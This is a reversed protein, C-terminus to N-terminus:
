PIKALGDVLLRRDEPLRIPFVETFWKRIDADSPATPGAWHIRIDAFFRRLAERAQDLHGLHVHAVAAWGQIDPFVDPANAVSEVCRKFDRGLLSVTSRYGWYLAPRFPNLAFARECLEAARAHRGCFANALGCVLLNDPNSPNLDHALQFHLEGPEFRRALLHSWGLHNHNRCDLPDLAVARRALDYAARRGAADEPSGPFMFWRSNLVSAWSGYACALQDDLSLAKQFLDIAEIETPQTWMWALAEGELWLDYAKRQDQSRGAVRRLRSAAIGVQIRSAIRCCIDNFV